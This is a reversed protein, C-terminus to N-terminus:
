SNIMFQTSVVDYKINDEFMYAPGPSGVGTNLKKSLEGMYIKSIDDRKAKPFNYAAATEEVSLPLKGFSTHAQKSDLAQALATLGITVCTLITSYLGNIALLFLFVGPVRFKGAFTLPKSKKKDLDAM